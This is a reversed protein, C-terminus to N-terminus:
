MRKLSGDEKEKLPLIYDIGVVVVLAVIAPILFKKLDM